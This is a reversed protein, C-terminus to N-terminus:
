VKIIRFTRRLGSSTVILLYLGSPYGELSIEVERSFPSTKQLIMRGSLDAIMIREVPIGNGDITLIEHARDQHINIRELRQQVSHTLSTDFLMCEVEQPALEVPDGPSISRDHFAEYDPLYRTARFVMNFRPSGGQIGPGGNRNVPNIYEWVIDKSVNLELFHGSRGLTVLINERPLPQAGSLIDSYFGPMILSFLISDHHHGNVPDFPYFGEGNVPSHIVVVESQSEPVFENNFAMFNGGHTMGSPIWRVDHQGSLRRNNQNGYGYAEPNGYRFLIDGGRGYRGGTSGAAQATTTSHDIVYFESLNRSSVVIQDLDPNYDISNFHLWSSSVSAPEQDSYNFDIREPHEHIVGFHPLRPDIDQVLHDIVSWEWVIEATNEPGIKIEVIKEAWVENDGLRGLQGAHEGSLKLWVTALFNGNPLPAMDHHAHMGEDAIRYSWKLAGEWSFLEFIGGRGGADFPGDVAGARLLNGNPLLYIGHGTKFQSEWQNIIKGCNDILYTTENNGFLTFGNESEPTNSILGMTPQAPPIRVTLFKLIIVLVLVRLPFKLITM